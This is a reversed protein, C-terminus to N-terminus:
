GTGGHRALDTMGDQVHFSARFMGGAMIPGTVGGNFSYWIANLLVVWKKRQTWRLPDSADTISPQPVLLIDGDGHKVHQLHRIQDSNGLDFLVETGPITPSDPRISGEDHRYAM